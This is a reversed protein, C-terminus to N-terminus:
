EYYYSMSINFIYGLSNSIENGQIHISYPGVKYTKGIRVFSNKMMERFQDLSLTYSGGLYYTIYEYGMEVQVSDYTKTSLFAASYNHRNPLDDDTYVQIVPDVGTSLFKGDIQSVQYSIPKGSKTTIASEQKFLGKAAVFEETKQLFEQYNFVRLEPLLNEKKKIVPTSDRFQKVFKVAEARTLSDNQKFGELTQDTKGKSLNCEYVETIYEDMNRGHKGNANVLLVALRGRSLPKNKWGNDELGKLEWQNNRAYNYFGASWDTSVPQTQIGYAKILMTLFEAETVPKNPKFTGDAYGNVIQNAHAWRIDAYAWHSPPVDSFHGITAASASTLQSSYLFFGLLLMVLGFKKSM